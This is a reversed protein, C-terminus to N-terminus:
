KELRSPPSRFKLTRKRHLNLKRVYLVWLIYVRVYKRYCRVCAVGMSVLFYAWIKQVNYMCVDNHM